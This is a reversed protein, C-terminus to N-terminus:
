GLVPDARPDTLLPAVTEKDNAKQVIDGLRDRTGLDLAAHEEDGM